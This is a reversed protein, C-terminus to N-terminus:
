VHRRTWIFVRGRPCAHWSAVRGRLFRTWTDTPEVHVLLAFSGMPRQQVRQLPPSIEMGGRRVNEKAAEFDGADIDGDVAGAKRGGERAGDGVRGDGERRM